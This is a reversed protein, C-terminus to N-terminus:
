CKDHYINGLEDKVYYGLYNKRKAIIEENIEYLNTIRFHPDVINILKRGNLALTDLLM